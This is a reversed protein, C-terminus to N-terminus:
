HYLQPSFPAQVDVYKQSGVLKILTPLNQTQAYRISRGSKFQNDHAMLRSLLGINAIKTETSM